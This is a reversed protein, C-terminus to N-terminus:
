VLCRISCYCKIFIFKIMEFWLEVRGLICSGCLHFLVADVFAKRLRLRHHLFAASTLTRQTFFHKGTLSGGYAFGSLESRSFLLYM